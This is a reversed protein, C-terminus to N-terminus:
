RKILYLAKLQDETLILSIAAKLYKLQQLIYEISVQETM